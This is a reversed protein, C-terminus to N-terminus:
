TDNLAGALQCRFGEPLDAIIGKDARSRNIVNVGSQAPFTQHGVGDPIHHPLVHDLSSCHVNLIAEQKKAIQGIRQPKLDHM